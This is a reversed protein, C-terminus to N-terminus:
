YRGPAHPDYDFTPDHGNGSADDDTPSSGLDGGDPLPSSRQEDLTSRANSERQATLYLDPCTLLIDDLLALGISRQGENFSVIDPQGPAFTTHFIHCSALINWVWERGSTTSMLSTVVERRNLDALAAAKQRRRISKRDIASDPSM